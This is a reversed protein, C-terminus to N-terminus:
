PLIQELGREESRTAGHSTAPLHLNECPMRGTHSNGDTDLIEGKLFIGTINSYPGGLSRM